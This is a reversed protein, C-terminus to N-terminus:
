GQRTGSVTAVVLEPAALPEPGLEFAAQLRDGLVAVDVSREGVLLTALPQGSEVRDGLRCQVLVGAGHAVPEDRRRRGAGVEVAIWGLAEADIGQVWGATRAVVPHEARPRALRAPDPDGGHVRVLHDWATLASGDDLATTLRRRAATPEDGGLVLAEVALAVSAERLVPEGEGALVARAARVECATGLASALPQNMDTVLARCGV